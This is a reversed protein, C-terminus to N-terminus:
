RYTIIRNKCDLDPVDPAAFDTRCSYLPEAAYCVNSPGLARGGRQGRLPEAGQSIECSRQIASFTDNDIAAPLWPPLPRGRSGGLTAPTQRWSTCHTVDKRKTWDEVGGKRKTVHFPANYHRKHFLKILSAHLNTHLPLSCLAQAFSTPWWWEGRM